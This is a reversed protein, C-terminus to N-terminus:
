SFMKGKYQQKDQEEKERILKELTQLEANVARALSPDLAKVRELDQRAEAPNWAGLHAKGRRFLAKINEPQSKLVTSAHEIAAYYEGQLLKCQSYNLLLPVKKDELEQWEEEGPKERLVLQELYQLAELYKLGAEAVKGQRYLENGEERLVPVLQLKEEPEMAWSDKKYNGEQEVQLLEIIFSLDSPHHFLENLDEFGLGQKMAMMGCCQPHYPKPSAQGAYQRYSQSVFPYPYVLDKKVDFRAVEQIYMSGICAEWVPMKFQKNLLLEMPKGAKRSDDIVVEEDTDPRTRLTQFHFTVKTCEPSNIVTSSGPSNSGKTSVRSASVERCLVTKMQLIIM